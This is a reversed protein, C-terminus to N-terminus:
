NVIKGDPSQPWTPSAFYVTITPGDEYLYGMEKIVVPAEGELVWLSFDPPQKGILPAVVGAVGGLDIKMKFQVAKRPAGALSFPAEGGPTFVLKVLRPKPTAVVMSVTASPGDPLMNQVIVGTLGNAVDPPLNM